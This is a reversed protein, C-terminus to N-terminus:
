IRSREIKSARRMSIVSIAESGLPRFVTAIALVGNLEGVALYRDQRAPSIISTEFFEVTLSGFDLGHKKLNTLRKPEDWVIKM